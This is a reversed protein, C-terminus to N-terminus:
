NFESELVTALERDSMGVALGDDRGDGDAVYQEPTECTFGYIGIAGDELDIRGDGDAELWAYDDGSPLLEGVPELKGAELLADIESALAGAVSVHVERDDAATDAGGTYLEYVVARDDVAAVELRDYSWRAAFRRFLPNEEPRDLHYELLSAKRADTYPELATAADLRVLLSLQKVLTEKDIPKVLYDNLPLTIIDHEPAVATIMVTIADFRATVADLLERGPGDPLRRDLLAIDLTSCSELAATGDAVSHAVTVTTEGGCCDNVWVRLLEALEEDDEVILVHRPTTEPPDTGAAADAVADSSDAPM